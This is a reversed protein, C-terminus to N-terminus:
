SKDKWVGLVMSDDLKLKCSFPSTDTKSINEKIANILASTEKRNSRIGIIFDMKKSLIYEALSLSGYYNDSFFHFTRKPNAEIVHDIAEKCLQFTNYSEEVEENQSNVQSGVTLKKKPKRYLKFWILYGSKDVLCYYKLGFIKAPKDPSYVKSRWWGKFRRLTEDIAVNKSPTFHNTFNSILINQAMEFFEDSIHYLSAVLKLWKNQSFNMEKFFLNYEHYDRLNKTHNFTTELILAFFGYILYPEVVLEKEQERRPNLLIVISLEEALDKVLQEPFLINFIQFPSKTRDMNRPGVPISNEYLPLFSFNNPVDKWEDKSRYYYIIREIIMEKKGSFSLKLEKCLDVLQIKTLNTLEEVKQEMKKEIELMPDEINMAQFDYIIRQFSERLQNVDTLDPTSPTFHLISEYYDVDREEEM